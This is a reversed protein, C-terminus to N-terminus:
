QADPDENKDQSVFGREARRLNQINEILNCESRKHLYQLESNAKEKGIIKQINGKNHTQKKM